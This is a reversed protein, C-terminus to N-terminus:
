KLYGLAKMQRRVEPDMGAGKGTTVFVRGDPLVVPRGRQTDAWASFRGRLDDLVEKHQKAVDHEEGPDRDRDYLKVRQGLNALILTYRSTRLAYSVQEPHKLGGTVDRGSSRSVVYGANEEKEGSLLRLRSRGQMTNPAPLQFLDLLTPMVDAHCFVESRRAPTAGCRAPLHFAMPVHLMEGYVTSGHGSAGHEGFAEGHDALVIVVSKDLVGLARLEALLKGVLSDAYALGEDYAASDDEPPRGDPGALRRKFDSPAGYPSHPERFHMYVFFRQTKHERLWDSVSGLVLAGDVVQAGTDRTFGGGAPHLGADRFVEHFLEFGRRFGFCEALSPSATFAATTYGAARMCEALTAGDGTMKADIGLTGHTDPFQSTFLSTVSPKTVPATAYAETLLVSDDFFGGLNPTTDWQYGFSTFHDARAADLLIIILNAGKAGARLQQAAPFTSFEQPSPVHYKAPPLKAGCGSLQTAALLGICGAWVRRRGERHRGM